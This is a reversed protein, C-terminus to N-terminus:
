FQFASRNRRVFQFAEAVYSPFQLHSLSQASGATLLRQSAWRRMASLSPANQRSCPLKQPFVCRKGRWIRAAQSRAICQARIM